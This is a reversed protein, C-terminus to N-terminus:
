PHREGTLPERTFSQGKPVRAIGKYTPGQNGPIHPDTVIDFQPQAFRSLRHLYGRQGNECDANGKEDIAANYAQGHLHVPDGRPRSPERYGEGNAPHASGMNSPNDAQQGTSKVLARQSYGYPGEQSVHESFFTFFYNWYNCVTQYPGLYRIQPQLSTVNATLARLAIGTDPDEMLDRLSVLAPRLDGYFDVSRETVPIGRELASNLEPLAPRLERAVPQM